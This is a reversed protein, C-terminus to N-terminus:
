HPEFVAGTVAPVHCQRCNEREPHSTRIEERAGPGAHCGLCNERMFVRHPMVPPALAHQRAGRPSASRHGEFDSAAFLGETVAFVHCRDRICM